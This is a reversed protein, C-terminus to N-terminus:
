NYCTAVVSRTAPAVRIKHVSTPLETQMWWSTSLGREFAAQISRIYAAAGLVCEPYCVSVEESPLNIAPDIIISLIIM